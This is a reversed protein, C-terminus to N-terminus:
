TAETAHILVDRRGGKGTAPGVVGEQEMRAVLKAAKNYGISLKRQVFSISCHGGEAVAAVARDYVVDGPSAQAPDGDEEDNEGASISEEYEPEGQARLHDCVRKIEEDSAYPSHARILDDNGPLLCLMDGKGLLREAGRCGIITSSDERQATKYAIRSPLNAKITGTLVDTSPRQTAIIMHIGAARAKRALRSIKAEVEKGAVDMLDALEDIVIVIFPLKEFRRYSTLNRVSRSVFLKYRRGMESIAWCLVRTARTMDTVVPHLMHPIRDYEALEVMKPDIMILRLEDPARKMVLSLLMANLGVSKGAGTAGAILLHPMTALDVYMPRGETDAGLAIPLSGDAQKWNSDDLITSAYITEREPTPLEFGVRAKGPIPAVIRVKRASLAMALNDSLGVIRSIKTGVAPEFEYMTVVPGPANEHIVGQVGFDALTRSLNAANREIAAYNRTPDKRKPADLLSVPPLQFDSPPPLSAPKPKFARLWARRAARKLDGCGRAYSVDLTLAPLVILMTVCLLSKGVHGFSTRLVESVEQGVGVRALTALLVLHLTALAFSRAHEGARRARASLWGLAAAIAAWGWADAYALWAAGTVYTVSLLKRRTNM